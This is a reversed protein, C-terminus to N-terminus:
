GGGDTRRAPAPRGSLAVLARQLELDPALKSQGKLAGDLEGLRVLADRLRPYGTADFEHVWNGGAMPDLGIGACSAGFTRALWAAQEAWVDM